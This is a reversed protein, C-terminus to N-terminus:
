GITVSVAIFQTNKFTYGLTNFVTGEFYGDDVGDL